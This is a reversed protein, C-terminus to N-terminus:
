RAGRPANPGTLEALNERTPDLREFTVIRTTASPAGRARCSLLHNAACGWVKFGLLRATAPDIYWDVLASMASLPRPDRVSMPPPAGPRWYVWATRVYREMSQFSEVRTGDFTKIGKPVAARVRHAAGFDRAYEGPLTAPFLGVGLGQLLQKTGKYAWRSRGDIFSGVRTSRCYNFCTREFVRGTATIIWESIDSVYRAREYGHIEIARARGDAPLLWGEDRDYFVGYRSRAYDTVDVEHLVHHDSVNAAAYARDLLNPAASAAGLGIVAAAAIAAAASISAVPYKIRSM